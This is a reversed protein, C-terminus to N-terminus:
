AAEKAVTAAPLQSMPHLVSRPVYFCKPRGLSGDRLWKEQKGEEGTVWGIIEFEPMFSLVSIYIRDPRDKPRLCLDDLKRSINTRVQYPGVDDARHDGVIPQWYINLAKAAAMEGGVGEINPTWTNFLGVGAGPEWNQKLSQVNRCSGVYAAVMMETVTLRARM